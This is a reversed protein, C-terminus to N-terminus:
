KKTIKSYAKPALITAAPLAVNVFIDILNNRAKLAKVIKYLAYSSVMALPGATLLQQPEFFEIIPHFFAHGLLWGVVLSGTTALTVRINTQIHTPIKNVQRQLWSKETLYHYNISDILERLFAPDLKANAGLADLNISNIVDQSTLQREVLKKIIKNLNEVGIVDQTLKKAKKLNDIKNTKEIPTVEKTITKPKETIKKAITKTKNLNEVEVVEKLIKKPKKIKKPDVTKKKIKKTKKLSEVPNAKKAKDMAFNSQTVMLLLLTTLHKIKM